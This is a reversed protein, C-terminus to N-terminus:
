VDRGQIMEDLLHTIKKTIIKRDYKDHVLKLANNAIAQAEDKHDMCWKINRLFDEPRNALLYHYGNRAEIGKIGHATTIVIKGAAM